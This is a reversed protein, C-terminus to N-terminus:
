YKTLLIKRIRFITKLPNNTLQDTDDERTKNKKQREKDVYLGDSNACTGEVNKKVEVIQSAKENV